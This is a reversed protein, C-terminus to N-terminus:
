RPRQRSLASIPLSELGEAEAADATETSGSDRLSAPEGATGRRFFEDEADEPLPLNDEGLAVDQDDGLAIEEDEGFAVDEADGLAIEEDDGLAIPEDMLEDTPGPSGM